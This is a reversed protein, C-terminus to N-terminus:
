IAEKEPQCFSSLSTQKCSRMRESTEIQRLDEFTTARDNQTWDYTQEYGGTIICDRVYNVTDINKFSSAIYFKKM